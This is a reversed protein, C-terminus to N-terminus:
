VEPLGMCATASTLNRLSMFFNQMKLGNDGRFVAAFIAMVARRVGEQNLNGQSDLLHAQEVEALNGIFAIMFVKNRPSILANAIEGDSVDITSLIDVTLKSSDIRAQEIPSSEMTTPINCEIVFRKRDVEFKRERILVPTDFKGVLNWALHHSRATSKLAERYKSYVEPHEKASLRIAMVRGNGSEVVGDTGVIPTGRDISHFDTLLIEPVLNAAMHRVQYQDVFRNRLWPQLYEPYAPNLTFNFPDHSTLLVSADVIKLDFEYRANDTNGFTFTKSAILKPSSGPLVKDLPRLSNTEPGLSKIYRHKVKGGTRYSEVLELYQHGGVLKRRVFAM